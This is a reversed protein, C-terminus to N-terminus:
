VRRLREDLRGVLLYVVLIVAPQATLLLWEAIVGRLFLMLTGALVVHVLVGAVLLVAVAPRRYAGLRGVLAVVAIVTLPLFVIVSTLLGPDYEGPLIAAVIHVMANVGVIGWLTMSALRYRRYLLAAIPASLWVLPLNVVLFFEPPIGCGPYEQQGLVVCIANPFAHPEGNAAIGYEEVNHVLYVLIALFSLWRLDRWRAIERDSRLLNTALLGALVVAFGLGIWPWALDFWTFM